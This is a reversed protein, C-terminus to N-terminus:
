GSGGPRGPLKCCVSQNGKSAAAQLAITLPRDVASLDLGWPPEPRELVVM